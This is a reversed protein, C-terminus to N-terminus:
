FTRIYAKARLGALWHDQLEQMREQRLRAEIESRVDKLPKMEGGQRAEVKLIYYNGGLEVVKSVEGPGLSFAVDSLPKSLTKDDV